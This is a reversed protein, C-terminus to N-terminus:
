SLPRRKEYAEKDFLKGYWESLLLLGAKLGTSAVWFEAAKKPNGYWDGIADWKRPAMSYEPDAEIGFLDKALLALDAIHTCVGTCINFAEGRMADNVQLECAAAIFAEVVDDIYVFDRSIYPNVLLPLQKKHGDVVLKPMLRTPAEYPGYVAYLRLNCCRMRLNKGAHEILQSAAAKSVAYDSNPTLRTHEKPAASNYGYESSTGAHVYVCEKPMRYLIRYVLDLNTKYIKTVNNEESFSGYAVCNIITGPQMEDILWEVDKLLDVPILQRNRAIRWEQHNDTITGFVDDRGALAKFISSGIFGGAGLVLVPGKLERM